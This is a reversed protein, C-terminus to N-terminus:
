SCGFLRLSEVACINKGVASVGSEWCHKSMLLQQHGPRLAGVVGLMLEEIFYVFVLFLSVFSFPNINPNVIM